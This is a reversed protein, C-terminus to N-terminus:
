QCVFANIPLNNGPQPLLAVLDPVDAFHFRSNGIIEYKIQGIALTGQKQIRVLVKAFQYKALM